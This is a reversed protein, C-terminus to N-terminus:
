RKLKRIHVELIARDNAQNVTLLYGNTEVQEGVKPIRGTITLIYGAVTEFDGDPIILGVAAEMHEREAHGVAIWEREGVRRVRTKERDSEDEIDGVIEELLDEVTIVGVSGGYEDVVVAM